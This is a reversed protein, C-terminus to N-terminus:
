WGCVLPAGWAHGENRSSVSVTPKQRERVALLYRVIDRWGEGMIRGSFYPRAAVEIEDREVETIAELEASWTVLFKNYGPRDFLTAAEELAAAQTMEAALAAAVARRAKRRKATTRGGAILADIRQVVEPKMPKSTRPQLYEDFLTM